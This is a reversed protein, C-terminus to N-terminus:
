TKLALKSLAFLVLTSENRPGPMSLPSSISASTRWFNPTGTRVSTWSGHCHRTAASTHSTSCIGANRARCVSRTTAAPSVPATTFTLFPCNMAGSSMACTTRLISDVPLLRM